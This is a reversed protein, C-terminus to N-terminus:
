KNDEKKNDKKLEKLCYIDHQLIERSYQTSKCSGVHGQNYAVLAEEINNYKEYANVLMYIGCEINDYPDDLSQIGLTSSLWQYNGYNIQMLGHDNTASVINTKFKSEHYMLALATEYLEPHGRKKLKKYLYDQYKNDLYYEYGEDSVYYLKNKRTKKKKTCTANGSPDSSADKSAYIELVTAIGATSITSDSSSDNLINNGNSSVSVKDIKNLQIKNEPKDSGSATYILYSLSVIVAGIIAFSSYRIINKIM